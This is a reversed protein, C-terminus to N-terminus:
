DKFRMHLSRAFIEQKRCQISVACWHAFWQYVKNLQVSSVPEPPKREKACPMALSQLASGGGTRGQQAKVVVPCNKLGDRSEFEILLHLPQLEEEYGGGGTRYRVAGKRGHPASLHVRVVAQM